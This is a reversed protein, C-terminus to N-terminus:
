REGPGDGMRLSYLVAELERVYERKDFQPAYVFGEVTVVRNREEDLMSLSVFPGGMKAGHMGYLGHMVFAFRGDVQTARGQPMLDLDEFGRQVIMYSGENPGEVHEMTVADRRDVLYEVTFTRESAYPEEHIFLGEIVNHELGGGSMLRDRQLWTFGPEEQMVRYGGPVDLDVAHRARVQEALQANREKTLRKRVRDRQHYTLAQDVEAAHQQLMRMWTVPDDATVHVLLQGRAHVDRARVVAVTDAEPGITALLVSHHVALLTGFNEPTTQAVKFRPEQQPLGEVPQELLSRVVAGPEGEWHGKAMVVLVEGQGGAAEPLHRTGAGGCAALLAAMAATVFPTRYMM